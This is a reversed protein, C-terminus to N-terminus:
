RISNGAKPPHRWGIIFSAALGFLFNSVALELFHVRRLEWPMAANPLLLPLVMLSGFTIAVLFARAPLPRALCGALLAAIGAFVFGRLLQPLILAGPSPIDLGNGYFARVAESQWAIAYGATFYLLVYLVAALLLKPPLRNSREARQYKPDFLLV